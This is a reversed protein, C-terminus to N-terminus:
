QDITFCWPRTNHSEGTSMGPLLPPILSSPQPEFVDVRSFGLVSWNLLFNVLGAGKEDIGQRQVLAGPVGPEIASDPCGNGDTDPSPAQGYFDGTADLDAVAFWDLHLPYNPGFVSVIDPIPVFVACLFEVPGEGDDLIISPFTVDDIFMIVPLNSILFNEGWPTAASAPRCPLIFIDEVIRYETFFGNMAPSLKIKEVFVVMPDSSTKFLYSEPELQDGNPGLCMERETWGDELVPVAWCTPDGTGPPPAGTSLRVCQTTYNCGDVWTVQAPADNTVFLLAALASLVFLSIRTIRM